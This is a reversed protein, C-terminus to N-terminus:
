LSTGPFAASAGFRHDVATEGAVPLFRWACNCRGLGRGCLCNAGHVVPRAAAYRDRPSRRTILRWEAARAADLKRGTHGHHAVEVSMAEGAVRGRSRRGLGNSRRRNAGLVVPRPAASRNTSSRANTVLPVGGVSSTFSRKGSRQRAPQRGSM